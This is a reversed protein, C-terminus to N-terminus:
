AGVLTVDVDGWTVRRVLLSREVREWRQSQNRARRAAKRFGSQNTFTREPPTGTLVSALPSGERVPTVPGYAVDAHATGADNRLAVRHPGLKFQRADLAHEGTAEHPSTAVADITNAAATADPPPTSPLAVAVGLALVSTTAVGLWLYWTDAPADFM